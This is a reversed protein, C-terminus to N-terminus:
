KQLSQHDYQWRRPNEHIYRCVEEYDDRSRIIHDYYGRQWIDVGYEKNCFRKFTSVFRSVASHQRSGTPASTRSPGDSSNQFDENLANQVILVIHIHDPMIVFQNVSLHDYFDNLQRIYKDAVIGQPKLIVTPTSVHSGNSPGDLVDAGVTTQHSANSPGDLVDAGVITSLLTKRDKTCITIFYAGNKSYNFKKLRLPKREEMDM